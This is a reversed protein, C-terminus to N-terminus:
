RGAESEQVHLKKMLNSVTVHSELEPLAHAIRRLSREKGEPHEKLYDRLLRLKDAELPEWKWAGDSFKVSISHVGSRKGRFTEYSLNFNLYDWNKNRVNLKIQIDLPDDNRSHGRQLGSKGAQHLVHICLGRSRLKQLWVLFPIWREEDNTSFPALSAVSDLILVEVGGLEAELWEQGDQEALSPIGNPHDDLTILQIHADRSHLLRMREQIQSNPLEGDVYLVSSPKVVKWNLFRGGTSHVGALALMSKGTGRAAFIQNISHKTFVPNDSEGIVVLPERPPFKTHLFARSDWVAASDKERRPFRIVAKDSHRTQM